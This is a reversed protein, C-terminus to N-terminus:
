QGEVIEGIETVKTGTQSEIAETITDIDEPYVTIILEFDEGGGAAFNLANCTASETQMMETVTRLDDSIPLEDAYILAGVNSARCLKPLDAGLGDSLDMLAHIAGTAAAARAEQVRPMPMLHSEVLYASIRAAEDFGYKLLLELGGRSNGLWGTVLIRDGPRAKSRLALHDPEVRGLQTISLVYDGDVSNM